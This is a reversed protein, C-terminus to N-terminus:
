VMRRVADLLGGQEFSSKVIYANAGADIGREREAQSELATVLIVPLESLRKDGRIRLTLDFGNMRPMDVDSVVCDFDGTRLQMLADVGDVASKVEYGATELISKLLTRATISDEVVLVRARVKEAAPSTQPRPAPRRMASRVLDPPHLVPAIRGNSLTAAGAVNRVRVLRSGLSKVLVEQEGIIEEVFLAVRDEGRRIVVVSHVAPREEAKPHSPLELIDSLAAAPIVRGGTQITETNEIRRIEEERVRLTREVAILPIVYLQDALRVIVGRFDSLALPVTIRFTTGRGRTTELVLTGRVSEVKERAIAMGLGRGSIDTVTPSTSVGLKFLLATLAAETLSGAEERSILGNKVASARVATFDIGAGDDSVVIEATGTGKHSISFTITGEAPKGVRTREAATEIGHDVCNRVLHMLPDSLADLIRKDIETEQGSIVIRAEKGQERCVERVFRPYGEVLSSFPSMLAKKLDTQLADVMGDLARADRAAMASLAATRSQVADLFSASWQMFDSLRVADRASLKNKELRGAIGAVKRWQLQWESFFLGAQSIESALHGASLRATLMEETQLLISELRSPDIRLTHGPPGAPSRPEPRQPVSAPEGRSVKGLLEAASASRAKEEESLERDMATLLLALTDTGFGLADVMVPSPAASGKKLAAFCEEMARCLAEMERKGVIRSAGKLSHAERFLADLRAPFDETPKELEATGASLKSIHEAAEARFTAKLRSRIDQDAM